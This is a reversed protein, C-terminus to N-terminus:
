NPSGAILAERLGNQLIQVQSKALHSDDRYISIGNKEFICQTGQCLAARPDFIRAGNSLAVARIEEGLEPSTTDIPKESLGMAGFVANSIELAPIPRDYVPFPLCIVVNKGHAKLERIEESLDSLFRSVLERRALYEGCKGNVAECARRERILLWTSFGLVVTDIDNQQARIMAFKSFADCHYGPDGNNLKDDPLCGSGIMFLFGHKQLLDSNYLAQVAPYLQEAHSDGWFMIKRNVRGTFECTKIDRLSHVETKWNSCSGYYDVTRALNDAILQRTQPGYRQPLGHSLYAAIGFAATLASAVLGFSFIQRRSFPSKAGRFPREVYEFSLFAALPSGLLVLTTQAGESFHFPLHSSFVIIPWHWLYLSYSIVGIFVLPRFSLLTRVSSPAQQGSYIILWAGLCPLLVVYGPFQMDGVHFPGLAGLTLVLGVWGAFERVLRNRIPPIAGVALLSGILLEWARPMPWYFAVIPRHETAWVNLAFSVAILGLLWIYVRSRAWRFLVFLTLPFLLYFQEEVSLSWTHRLPPTNVTDFYGAPQASHWFYFNSFFFTTTLLSKGFGVMEEPNLLILGAALCAFLVTFLAPFIRRMRREYFSVISFRNKDIDEALLSTILYGSIVFFIDVGVYGRRFFTLGTHFFLVSLVAIARLGDIDPRYKASHGASSEFSIRTWKWRSAKPEEVTEM